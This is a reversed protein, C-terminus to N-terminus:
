LRYTGPKYKGIVLWKFLIATIPAIIRVGLRAAFISALLTGLRQQFSDDILPAMYSM